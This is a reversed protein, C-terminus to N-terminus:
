SHESGDFFNELEMKSLEKRDAGGPDLIHITREAEVCDDVWDHLISHAVGRVAVPFHIEITDYQSATSRNLVKLNYVLGGIHRMRMLLEDIIEEPNRADQATLVLRKVNRIVIGQVKKSESSGSSDLQFELGLDEYMLLLQKVFPESEKSNQEVRTVLRDSVRLARAVSKVNLQLCARAASLYMAVQSM